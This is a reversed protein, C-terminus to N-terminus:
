LEKSATRLFAFPFSKYTGRKSSKPMNFESVLGKKVELWTPSPLLECCLWFVISVLGVTKHSSNSKCGVAACGVM